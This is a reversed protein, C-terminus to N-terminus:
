VSDESGDPVTVTELEAVINGNNTVLYAGTLTGNQDMQLVFKDIITGNTGPEGPDGTEGKLGSFEFTFTRALSTGGVDLNVAPTGTTNTITATASEITANEGNDGDTGNTGSYGRPIGLTLTGNDLTATATDEPELTNAQVREIQLGALTEVREAVDGWGDTVDGLQEEVANLKDATIVEGTQWTYPNWSEPM